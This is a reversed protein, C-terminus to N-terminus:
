SYSEEPQPVRVENEENWVPMSLPDMLPVVFSSATNWRDAAHTPAVPHLFDLDPVWSLELTSDGMPLTHYSASQALTPPLSRFDAVASGPDTTTLEDSRNPGWYSTDVAALIHVFQTVTTKQIALMVLSRPFFVPRIYRYNLDGNISPM